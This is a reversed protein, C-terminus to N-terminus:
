GRADLKALIDDWQGRATLIAECVERVAGRGGPAATVWDAAAIVPPCADAVAIGVGCARMGPLDVVDDGVFAAEDCSVGVARALERVGQGKDRCRGIFHKVGLERHRLEAIDAPRGSLIGVELGSRCLLALGAGDRSYFTLSRRGDQDYTISGDTLVGDCDLVLLRLRALRERVAPPPSAIM